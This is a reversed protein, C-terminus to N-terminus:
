ETEDDEGGNQAGSQLAPDLGPPLLDKERLKDYLETYSKEGFNRIKLLDDRSMELVAGVTDVGARKLCNLTRASLYLGEIQYTYHEPPIQTSPSAEGEAGNEAGKQFNAFLGFQGVLIAAANKMAEAPSLSGDTWVEMTLKEFNTKRGVRTPVVSYSVKRIPTFVADVPLVGIPMGESIGAERYGKGREVNLELSLKADESELTAIDLEPNVVEFNASLMIDAATVKGAGAVDLRLKGPVDADTRLRLAKVNLLIETVQEKINPITQYEHQVGDIKVSTVAAGELGNYLVRRIPNAVTHGYGAELPEIVFRGYRVGAAVEVDSDGDELNISPPPIVDASEDILPDDSESTYPMPTPPADAPIFTDLVM